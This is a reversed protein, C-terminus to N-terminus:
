WGKPHEIKEDALRTGQYTAFLRGAKGCDDAKHETCSPLWRLAIADFLGGAGDAIPVPLNLALKGRADVPLGPVSEVTQSNIKAVGLKPSCGKAGESCHDKLLVILYDDLRASGLGASLRLEQEKAHTITRTAVHIAIFMDHGEISYSKSRDNTTNGDVGQQWGLKQANLGIASDSSVTVSGAKLAEIIRPEGKPGALKTIDKVRVISLDAFHATYHDRAKPDIGLLDLVGVGLSLQLNKDITLGNLSRVTEVNDTGAPEGTPGYGKIWLAGVPVDSRPPNIGVFREFAQKPDPAFEPAASATVAFTLGVTLALSLLSRM